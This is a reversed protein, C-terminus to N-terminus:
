NATTGSSSSSGNLWTDVGGHKSCAGTHSTSHSYTGDKCKATAGKASTSSSAHTTHTTTSANSSHTTGTTSSTTHTTTAPKVGGHHSCAGQGAQSTTGDKCTVTKPPTASTDTDSSEAAYAVTSLSFMAAVAAVLTFRM